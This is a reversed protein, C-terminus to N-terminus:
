KTNKTGKHHAANEPENIWGGGLAKVLLLSSAM